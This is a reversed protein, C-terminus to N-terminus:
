QRITLAQTLHFQNKKDPHTDNWQSQEPETTMMLSRGAMSCIKCNKLESFKSYVNCCNVIYRRGCHIRQDCGKLKTKM